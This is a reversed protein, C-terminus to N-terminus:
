VEEFEVSAVKVNVIDCKIGTMSLLAQKVREQVGRSVEMINYGFKIVISVDVTVIDANTGTLRPKTETKAASEVAQKADIRTDDTAQADAKTDEAIQQADAKADEGLDGVSEESEKETVAPPAYSIRVGKALNSKGVKAVVDRTLGGSLRAVGDVDTVALAVISVIVEDAIKVSGAASGDAVRYKDSKKDTKGNDAM